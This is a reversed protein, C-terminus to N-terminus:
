SLADRRVFLAIAVVLAVGLYISFVGASALPSFTGALPEMQLIQGQAITPLYNSNVKLLNHILQEILPLVFYITIAGTVSRFLFGIALGLWASGAVYALTKWLLSYLDIFQTGVSHGAVAAGWSMLSIAVVVSLLTMVVALAATVILKAALVKLRDNSITLSYAITNYRYEHCILLISLVGVFIATLMVSNLAISQLATPAFTPGGRYGTGYFSIFGILLLALGGVAYTSRVTLLKRFEARLTAM